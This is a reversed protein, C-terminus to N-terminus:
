LSRILEIQRPAWPAAEELHAALQLLMAETGPRVAGLMAGFPLEVGGGPAAADEVWAHHIPVSISPAGLMNWVSTWPTFRKQAEFDEAPDPLQLEAPPLPRASLTPTLIVDLDEWATALRRALLQMGTVANAFDAASYGQGMERLWRTLPMLGEESGPPLPLQAAFTSWLPMFTMWDAGTMPRPAQVVEHGAEELLAATKEAAARAEPHLDIQDVNLPEFLLGIRLRGPDGECAALFGGEQEPVTWSDGPWPKALVDLFAATDRVTRSIVGETSLGVSGGGHPGPSVRGRSPKLGVVGCAAAPIRLSGGGDSGHAVPVVGSAVAASAGGSSGGATRTVDWPTRADPGHATETYPPFGFEPTSTKGVMVTGVQRLLTVVGDDLQAITGRMVASGAEWPLGAVQTLDKIPVPVGLFPPPADPGDPSGAARWETLTQDADRAQEAAYEEARHAFAGVREGVTAIRAQTADNVEVASVEGRRLAAALDLASLEHLSTM